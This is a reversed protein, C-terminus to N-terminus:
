EIWSVLFSIKVTVQKLHKSLIEKENIDQLSSRLLDMSPSKKSFKFPILPNLPIFDLKQAVVRIKDKIYKIKM